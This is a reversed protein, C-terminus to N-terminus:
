VVELVQERQVPRVWAMLLRGTFPLRATVRLSRLHPGGALEATSLRQSM